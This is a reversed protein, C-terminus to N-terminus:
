DKPEVTSTFWTIGVPTGLPVFVDGPITLKYGEPKGTFLGAPPINCVVELTAPIVPGTVPVLNVTMNLVGAVGIGFSGITSFSVLRKAKWTGESIVVGGVQQQFSGNGVVNGPSIRGDGAMIISSAGDTSISVFHFNTQAAKRLVIETEQPRSSVSNQQECGFIILAATVVSLIFIRHKM